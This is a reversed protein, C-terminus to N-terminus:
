CEEGGKRLCRRAGEMAATLGLSQSAVEHEVATTLEQLALYLEDVRGVMLALMTSEYVGAPDRGIM